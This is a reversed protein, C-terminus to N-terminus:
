LNSHLLPSATNIAQAGFHEMLLDCVRSCVRLVKRNAQMLMHVDFSKAEGKIRQMGEIFEDIDVIGDGDRDLLIFLVEAEATDVSMADMYQKIHEHQLSRSFEQRSITADANSDMEKLIERLHAASAERSQAEKKILMSRDHKALEIAGDVFVGTVINLVSFICFFIFVLSVIFYPSGVRKLPTTVDGWSVGGSMAQFLTYMTDFLTGYREEILGDKHEDLYETAGMTLVIAFVYILMSLLTFLWFLSLMSDTIMNAMVRLESLFRV